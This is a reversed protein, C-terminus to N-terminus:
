CYIIYFVCGLFQRLLRGNISIMPSSILVRRNGAEDGVVVRLRSVMPYRSKLLGFAHEVKVRATSLSENFHRRTGDPDRQVEIEPAKFPRIVRNTLRYASDGLIYGQSDQFFYEPHNYFDSENLVTSDHTSGTDISDSICEFLQSVALLQLSSAPKLM